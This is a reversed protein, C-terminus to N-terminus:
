KDFKMQQQEGTVSPATGFMTFSATKALFPFALLIGGCIFGAMIMGPKTGANANRQHQWWGFVAMALLIGAGIFCVANLVMGFANMGKQTAAQMVDDVAQAHAASAFALFSLASLAPAALMLSRKLHARSIQTM